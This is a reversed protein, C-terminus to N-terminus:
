SESVLGDWYDDDGQEISQQTATRDYEVFEIMLKFREVNLDDYKQVEGLDREILMGAERMLIEVQNCRAEYLTRVRDLANAIDVDTGWAWDIPGVYLDSSNTSLSLIYNPGTFGRVLQGFYQATNNRITTWEMM